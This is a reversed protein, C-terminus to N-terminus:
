VCLEGGQLDLERLEAFGFFVSIGPGLHMMPLMSCEPTGVHQRGFLIIIDLDAGTTEIVPVVVRYLESRRVLCTDKEDCRAFTDPKLVNMAGLSM